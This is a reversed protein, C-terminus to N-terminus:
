IRLKDTFPFFIVLPFYYMNLYWSWTLNMM